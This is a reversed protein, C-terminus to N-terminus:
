FSGRPQRGFGAYRALHSRSDAPQHDLLPGLDSGAGRRNMIVTSTRFLPNRGLDSPVLWAMAAGRRALHDDFPGGAQSGAAPM